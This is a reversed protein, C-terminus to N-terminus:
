AAKKYKNNTGTGRKTKNHCKKCLTLGNDVDLRLEPYNIWEKIHHAELYVGRDGCDQCTYDDREFVLKRWEGAEESGWDQQRESIVFGDWEERSIGRATCSRQIKQEETLKFSGNKIRTQRAKEKHEETLSVGKNWSPKGKKMESACERSCSKRTKLTDNRVLTEKGCIPCTYPSYKSRNKGM